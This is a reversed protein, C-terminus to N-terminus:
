DLYIIILVLKTGLKAREHKLTFQDIISPRNFTLYKRQYHYYKTDSMFFVFSDYMIRYLM